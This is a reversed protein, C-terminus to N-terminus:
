CVLRGSFWTIPNTAQGDVGVTKTTNLGTITISATTGATLNVLANVSLTLTGSVACTSPNLQLLRYTNAGVALFAMYNTCAGINYLSIGASFYYNGTVPATFVGTSNNYDSAQDFLETDFIITYNTGDGTANASQSSLYASFAPQVPYNIAGASSVVVNMNDANSTAM